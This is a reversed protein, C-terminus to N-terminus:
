QCGTWTYEYIKGEWNPPTNVQLEGSTLRYLAFGGAGDILTNSAPTAPVKNIEALTARFIFTGNGSWDLRYVDVGASNCYVAATAHSDKWNMREDRIVACKSQFVWKKTTTTIAVGTFPNTGVEETVDEQVWCDTGPVPQAFGLKAMSLLMIGLLIALSLTNRQLTM